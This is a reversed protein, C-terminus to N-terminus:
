ELKRIKNQYLAVSETLNNILPLSKEDDRDKRM